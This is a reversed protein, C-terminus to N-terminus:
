IAVTLHFLFYTAGGGNDAWMTAIDVIIIIETIKVTINTQILHSLNYSILDRNTIFIM